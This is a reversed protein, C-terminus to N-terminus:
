EFGVLTVRLKIFEIEDFNKKEFRAIDSSTELKRFGKSLMVVVSSLLAM